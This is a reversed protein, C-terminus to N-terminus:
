RVTVFLGILTGIIPVWMVLNVTLLTNFRSRIEARVDRMDQYLESQEAAIRELVGELRDVRPDRITM